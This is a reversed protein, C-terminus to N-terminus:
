IREAVFETTIRALQRRAERHAGRADGPLEHLAGSKIVRLGDEGYIRYTASHEDVEGRLTDEHIHEIEYEVPILYTYAPVKFGRTSENRM